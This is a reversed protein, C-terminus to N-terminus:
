CRWCRWAGHVVIWLTVQLVVVAFNMLESIMHASALDWPPKTAAPKKHVAATATWSLTAPNHQQWLMM